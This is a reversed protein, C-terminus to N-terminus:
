RAPCGDGIGGLTSSVALRLCLLDAVPSCRGFVSSRAGFAPLVVVLLLTDFGGFGLEELAVGSDPLSCFEVGPGPGRFVRTGAVARDRDTSRRVWLGVGDRGFRGGADEARTGATETDDSVGGEVAEATNPETRDYGTLLLTPAM